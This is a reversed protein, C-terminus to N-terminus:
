EDELKHKWKTPINILTDFTFGEVMKNYLEPYSSKPCAFYWKKPFFLPTKAQQIEAWKATGSHNVSEYVEAVHKFIQAECLIAEAETKFVLIM